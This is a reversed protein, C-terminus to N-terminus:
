GFAEVSLACPSVFACAHLVAFEEVNAMEAIAQNMGPLKSGKRWTWATSTADTKIILKSRPTIFKRFTKTALASALAEKHTIHLRAQNPTWTQACTHIEKGQLQLHAGLRSQKRRVYDCLGIRKKSPAGSTNPTAGGQTGEAVIEAIAHDEVRNHGLM